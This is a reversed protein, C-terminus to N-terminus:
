AELWRLLGDHEATSTHRLLLYNLTCAFLDRRKSSLASTYPPPKRLVSFPWIETHPPLLIKRIQVDPPVSSSSWELRRGAERKGDPLMWVGDGDNSGEYIM